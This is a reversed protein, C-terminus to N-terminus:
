GAKIYLLSKAITKRGMTKEVLPVYQDPLFDYQNKLIQRPQRFILRTGQKANSILNEFIEVKPEAQLAVLAVSFYPPHFDAADGQLLEIRDQLRYKNLSYQVKEIVEPDRDLAIVKAGSYKVLNLATSPIAGCGVNLVVDRSNIGGLDIEGQTIEAYYKQCLTFVPSVGCGIKEWSHFTETLLSL